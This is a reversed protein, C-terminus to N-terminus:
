RAPATVLGYATLAALVVALLLVALVVLRPGWSAAAGDSVPLGRAAENFAGRVAVASPMCAVAAALVDLPTTSQPPKGTLLGMCIGAAIDADGRFLTDSPTGDWGLRDIRVGAGSLTIVGSDGNDLLMQCHPQGGDNHWTLIKSMGQLHARAALWRMVAIV